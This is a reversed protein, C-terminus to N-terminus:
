FRQMSYPAPDVIPARQCILDALLHGTAASMSVGLMGHGTALWGNKYNPSAGLIPLDDWTMPRWGFWEELKLPGVAEHLYEGAGRELADLRRHNLSSDYGSFEMTSGLRYGSSWTTVCVSCEKLVIPRKPALSPRTYTISYGKGPQVPLDINIAKMMKPSWPGLAFLYDQAQYDGLSTTIKQVKDYGTEIALVECQEIILGGLQKVVRALEATYLDPRLHADGPYHVAGAMGLKLAPEDKTLEDSSLLTPFLGFERVAEAEKAAKEFGAQSKYVNHMGTAAFECVLNEQKILDELLRRSNHLLDMKAISSAHWDKENCRSAFKLLWAILNPDLTPKVYFPADPTLMWKMAKSIMGPSALPPIHSPTITGCNGHSTASGIMDRELVCVTRGARLLYYACALGIGGGGYEIM